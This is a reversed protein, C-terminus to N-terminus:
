LEHQGHPPHRHLPLRGVVSPLLPTTTASPPPALLPILLLLFLFLLLPFPLLCPLNKQYHRGHQRWQVGPSAAYKVVAGRQCSHLSYLISLNSSASRTFCAFALDSRPDHHLLRSCPPARIISQFGTSVEWARVVGLEKWYWVPM